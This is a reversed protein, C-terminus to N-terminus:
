PGLTFIERAKARIEQAARAFLTNRNKNQASSRINNNRVQSDAAKRQINRCPLPFCAM